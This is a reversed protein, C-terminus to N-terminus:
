LQLYWLGYNNSNYVLKAIKPAECQIFTWEYFTPGQAAGFGMGDSRFRRLSRQSLQSLEQIKRGAFHQKEFMEMDHNM